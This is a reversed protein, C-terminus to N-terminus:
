YHVRYDCHREILEYKSNNYFSWEDFFSNGVYAKVLDYQAAARVAVPFLFSAYVAWSRSFM